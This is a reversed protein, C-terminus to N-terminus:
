EWFMKYIYIYIFSNEQCLNKICICWLYTVFGDLFFTNLLSLRNNEEDFFLKYIFLDRERGQLLCFRTRSAAQLGARIALDDPPRRAPSDTLYLGSPAGSEALSSKGSEDRRTRHRFSIDIALRGRGGARRQAALPARERVSSTRKM